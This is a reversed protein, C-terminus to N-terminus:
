RPASGILVHVCCIPTLSLSKTRSINSVGQEFNTQVLQLM